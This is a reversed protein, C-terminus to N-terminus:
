SGQANFDSCLQSSVNQSSFVSVNLPRKNSYPLAFWVCWHRCISYLLKEQFCHRLWSVAIKVTHTQNASRLNMWSVHTWSLTPFAWNVGPWLPALLCPCLQNPNCANNDVVGCWVSVWKREDASASPIIPTEWLHGIVLSRVVWSPM